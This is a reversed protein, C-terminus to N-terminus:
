SEAFWSSSFSPKSVPRSGMFVWLTRVRERERGRKIEREKERGGEGVRLGSPSLGRAWSSECPRLGRDTERERERAREREIARERECFRLRM